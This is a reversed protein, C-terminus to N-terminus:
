QPSLDMGDEEELDEEGEVTTHGAQLIGALELEFGDAVSDPYKRHHDKIKVLRSYFESLDDQQQSGSLADLEVQRLAQDAYQRDLTLYRGQIRDLIQAAKHNNSLSERHTPPNRALLDTLARQFREIEEHSQRQLEILSEM